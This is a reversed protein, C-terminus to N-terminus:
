IKNLHRSKSLYLSMKYGTITNFVVFLSAAILKNSFVATLIGNKKLEGLAWVMHDYPEVHYCPDEEMWKRCMPLGEDLHEAEADGSAILARKLANRIGDGAFYNFADVPQVPLGFYALTMNVPRAISEQTRALTGDLDFICIKIM